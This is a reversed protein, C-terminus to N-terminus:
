AKARFNMVTTRLPWVVEFSRLPMNSSPGIARQLVPRAGDFEALNLNLRKLDAAIKVRESLALSAGPHGSGCSFASM